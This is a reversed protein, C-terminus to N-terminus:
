MWGGDGWRFPRVEFRGFRGDGEGLDELGAEFLGAVEGEEAVTGDFGFVGFSFGGGEGIRRSRRGRYGGAKKVWPTAQSRGASRSATIRAAHKLFISRALRM